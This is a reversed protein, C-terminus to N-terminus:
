CPPYYCPTTSTTTTGTTTGTTTTTTMTTTPMTSGTPTGAGASGALKLVHWTGGFGHVGQGTAHDRQTDPAFRYLPHGGLTVQFLGDRHWVRLKGNIGPAKSLRSASSVKVPPWFMFCGNGKTCKPHSRSDGSLEYVAFGRSTVVINERTTAGAQNTVQANKAVRLTFATALAVGVLAALAFGALVAVTGAAVTRRGTPFTSPFRTM